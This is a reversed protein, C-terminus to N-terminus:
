SSWLESANPPPRSAACLATPVRWTTSRGIPPAGKAAAVQDSSRAILALLDHAAVGVAQVDRAAQTAAEAANTTRLRMDKSRAGLDAATVRIEEGAKDFATIMENVASRFPETIFTHGALHLKSESERSRHAVALADSDILAQRMREAAAAMEAMPGSGIRDPLAAYRDGSTIQAIPEIASRLRREAWWAASLGALLAATATLPVSETAWDTLVSTGCAFLIPLLIWGAPVKSRFESTM